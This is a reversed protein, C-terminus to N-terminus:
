NPAVVEQAEVAPMVAAVLRHSVELISVALSVELEIQLPPHSFDNRFDAGTLAVRAIDPSLVGDDRARKVLSHLGVRKGRAPPPYLLRLSAEVAHLGVLCAVSMFEYEFWSYAFLRRATRLLSMVGRANPSEVVLAGWGEAWGELTEFSTPADPGLNHAVLQWRPDATLPVGGNKRLLGYVSFGLNDPVPPWGPGESHRKSGVSCAHGIRRVVSRRSV